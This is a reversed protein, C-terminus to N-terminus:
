GPHLTQEAERRCVPRSDRGKGTSARGGGSGGGRWHLPGQEWTQGTEKRHGWLRDAGAGSGASSVERSGSGGPGQLQLDGVKKEALKGPPPPPLDVKVTEPSGRGRERQGDPADQTWGREFM